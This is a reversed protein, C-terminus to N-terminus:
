VDHYLTGDIFFTVFMHGDGSVPGPSGDGPRSDFVKVMTKSREMEIEPESDMEVKPHSDM